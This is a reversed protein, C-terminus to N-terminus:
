HAQNRGIVRPDLQGTVGRAIVYSGRAHKKAQYLAADAARLLDGPNHSHLPYVAIGATIGLQIRHNALMPPNYEKMLEILKRTVIEAVELGTNRMVLTLEDGGYRALFDTSRMKEALYNFVSHLVSDGATHGLTDNVKKFNDLDMMVVSFLSSMRQAYRFEEQLREDLARRNPLGTVSDTNAMEMMFKHLRANSIAVAAQDALLGLLRLEASTFEGSITRSLNMVGVISNSFKLPIGIISGAWEGPAGQYLPHDLIDEVIIREGSKAVSYTLGDPRPEAFPKNKEGNTSLSAGFELHGQLYLYIHATRANRVLRMAETVVADLVTQLDLSSTLNLSISKLADLEDAQQKVLAVLSHKSILEQAAGDASLDAQLGPSAEAAEILAQTLKLLGEKEDAAISTDQEIIEWVRRFLERRDESKNKM